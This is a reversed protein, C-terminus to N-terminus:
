KAVKKKNRSKKDNVPKVVSDGPMVFGKPREILGQQILMVSDAYNFADEAPILMRPGAGSGARRGDNLKLGKSGASRIGRRFVQRIENVLNVRVTDTIRRSEAVTKDNIRARGLRIKMKEPTGKINIGFKFPIPSKIVAVHYDLNFAADNSGRVGLRYRDLDFIFPYLDIYGDHIALEVDMHDILNRDKKKFLMWKAITRFTENDLLQLSDGSIKLVMNLTNLKLDMNRDLETTLAMDTDVIGRVEGLLPLLSDIQPMMDLVSRLNLRRVCIAAALSLDDATPAQYLASFSVAGINTYAKLKDLNVAGDYVEVLGDLGHLWLNSYLVHNAQMAFRATINSPIIVATRSTDPVESDLQRQLYDESESDDLTGMTGAAIKDAFVSGRIMTAILHNVDITDSKVNFDLKYPSGHRSMLARRLNHVSGSFTFDSNDIRLKTESLVISDTSFSMNLGSLTNRSPFYPTFVRVRSAKLSGSANWRMFMNRTSKDLEVTVDERGQRTKDYEVLAHRTQRRMLAMISDSSLEPYLVAISDFRAQRRASMQPKGKPHLVLTAEGNRLMARNYRDAYMMFGSKVLAKLLPSRGKGEYRQLSASIQPNRLRIRVSDSDSRMVLRGAKITAGIPNIQSTDASSAMNRAGIRVEMKSGGLLMEPTVLAVTDISLSAMLMSDVMQDKVTISSNSGLHFVAHRLYTDLSGDTMAMRFDDLSIEGDIKARHFKRPTLYSLRTRVDAKGRVVGRVACPLKDLLQQPLNQITLMGDFSATVSPDTVPNRVSGKLNFKMAKGSASLDNLKIKAGDPNNLDVDADVDITFRDLNLRGLIVKGADAKFTVDVVPLEESTPRYPKLIKASMELKLDTDLDLEQFLGSYAEPVLAVVKTLEVKPVSATFDNVTLPETMDVRTSFRAEVEGIRVSFDQLGVQLPNKSEWEINGDIGFPTEKLNFMALAAKVAGTTSLTYLPRGASSSDALAARHVGLSCDLSDSPIRFRAELGDTIAFRNISIDPMKLPKEEEAEPESPPMILYNATLSDVRVLNVRTGGINVDYISIDGKALSTLNIGGSFKKVFLLSDADAPLSRRVSDPLNRLARSTIELSDVDLTFRPFTHWFTLEVRRANVDAVLYESAYRNVMPTLKDPTLIWVVLSILLVVLLALTLVSAGFWMLMRVWLPRRKKTEQPANDSREQGSNKNQEETM